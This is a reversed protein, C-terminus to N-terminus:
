GEGLRASGLGLVESRIVSSFSAPLPALFGSFIVLLILEILGHIQSIIEVKKAMMMTRADTIMRAFYLPVVNDFQRRPIVKFVM